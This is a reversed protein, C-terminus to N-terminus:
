MARHVTVALHHWESSYFVTLQVKGFDDDAMQFSQLSKRSALDMLGM